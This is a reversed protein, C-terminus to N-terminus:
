IPPLFYLPENDTTFIHPNLVPPLDMQACKPPSEFTKLAVQGGECVYFSKGFAKIPSNENFAFGLASHLPTPNLLVWAHVFIHTLKMAMFSGPGKAYYLAQITLNQVRLWELLNEFIEILAANTRKHVEFARLLGGELAYVGVKVPEQM